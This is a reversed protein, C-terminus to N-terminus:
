QQEAAVSTVQYALATLFSWGEPDRIELENYELSLSELNELSRLNLPITGTFNNFSLDIFQLHSANSM